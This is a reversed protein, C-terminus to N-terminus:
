QGDDDPDDEDFMNLEEVEEYGAAGIVPPINFDEEGVTSGAPVFMGLKAEVMEQTKDKEANYKKRLKDLMEPSYEQKGKPAAVLVTQLGPTCQEIDITTEPKDLGEVKHLMKAGELMAKWDGTSDGIRMAKEAASRIRYQSMAKTDQNLEGVLFDIVKKDQRIETDSRGYKNKIYKRVDMFPNDQLKKYADLCVIARRKQIPSMGMHKISVGNELHKQMLNFFKDSIDSGM